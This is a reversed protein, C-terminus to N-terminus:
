EEPLVSSEEKVTKLVFHTETRSVGEFGKIEKYVQELGDTSDTVIHIVFDFEGTQYYCSSINCDKNVLEVFSDYYDPHKLSVEMLAVMNNGMKSQDIDITYGKIVGSSELKRIREIVASVSLNIQEGIASATLRANDRLCRLIKMDIKDM